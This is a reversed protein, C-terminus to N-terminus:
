RKGVIGRIVGPAILYVALVGGGILLATNVTGKTVDAIVDIPERMEDLTYTYPRVIIDPVLQEGTLETFAKLYVEQKNEPIDYRNFIELIIDEPPTDAISQGTNRSWAIYAELWETHPGSHEFAGVLSWVAPNILDWSYYSKIRKALRVAVKDFETPNITRFFFEGKQQEDQGLTEYNM